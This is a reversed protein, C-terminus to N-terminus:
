VFDGKCSPGPEIIEYVQALLSRKIKYQANQYRHQRIYLTADKCQNWYQNWVCINKPVCRIYEYIEAVGKLLRKLLYKIM